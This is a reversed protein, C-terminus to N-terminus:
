PTTWTMNNHLLKSKKYKTNNEEAIRYKSKVKSEVNYKYYHFILIEFSKKNKFWANNLINVHVYM